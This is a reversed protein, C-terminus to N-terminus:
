RRALVISACPPFSQGSPVVERLSLLQTAKAQM